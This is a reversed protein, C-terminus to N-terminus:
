KRGIADLLERKRKQPVDDWHTDLLAGEFSYLYYCVSITKNPYNLKIKKYAEVVGM